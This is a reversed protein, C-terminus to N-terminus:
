GNKPLESFPVKSLDGPEKPLGLTQNTPLGCNGCLIEAPGVADGYSHCRRQRKVSRCYKSRQPSAVVAVPPVLCLRESPLGSEGAAADLQADGIM